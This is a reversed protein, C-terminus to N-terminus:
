EHPVEKVALVVQPEELRPVLDLSQEQWRALEKDYGWRRMVRVLHDIQPRLNLKAEKANRASEVLNKIFKNEAGGRRIRDAVLAFLSKEEDTPVDALGLDDELFGNLYRLALEANKALGRGKTVDRLRTEEAHLFLSRAPTIWPGWDTVEPGAMTSDSRLLAAAEILSVLKPEDTVRYYAERDSTRLYVVASHDAGPRSGRVGPPLNAIREYEAGHDKKFTRLEMLLDLRPNTGAEREDEGFADFLGFSRTQEHPSYIPADEGFASHFAQLKMRAKKQLEIVDDIRPQPFFNYIFIKEATSGVRNVRGIRQFLRVSNWPTDYNVITNARHLNIGEALVDTTILIHYVDEQEATALNADFNRRLALESEARNAASVVLADSRNLARHLDHATDESETFVVVRGGPNKARKLFNHDIEKIFAEVKPDRDPAAWPTWDKILGEILFKDARLDAAFSPQFDSRHCITISPDDEGHGELEAALGDMDENLVFAEVDVSAAIVFHDADLMSLSTEMGQHFRRMSQLFAHFSSDMRKLFLRKLLGGLQDFTNRRADFRAGKEGTLYSLAKHYAYTIKEGAFLDLTRQFLDDLDSELFFGLPQPKQVQPFRIRQAELDRSYEPHTMLDTRTRRIIVPSIVQERIEHYLVRTREEAEETTITSDKIDEYENQCKVFFSKLDAEPLSSSHVDQFLALLNLIEVPQNNLPTASVLIVKKRGFTGRGKCLRELVEYKETRHNRFNHAEDLVVLGYQEPHEVKHLSGSSIFDIRDAKIRFDAITRRWNELIVPPAVVLVRAKRDMERMQCFVILAAVITKGLGVVDALFFGGHRALLRLGENVADIQYTLRMYGLPLFAEVNRSDYDVEDQFVEQLFRIYLDHPSASKNLFTQTRIVQAVEVPLIETAEGWLRDFEQRVFILQYPSSLEVNLEYNSRNYDKHVGLGPATFNSSGTIVLGAAGMGPNWAEPLFLYFKAHVVRKDYARMELRGDLIDAVFATVGAEIEPKYGAAKIDALLDGMVLDRLARMRQERGKRYWDASLRDADIGVLIRITKLSQLSERLPFYGSSRFYGVVASLTLDKVPSTALFDRFRDYLSYEENNFIGRALADDKTPM